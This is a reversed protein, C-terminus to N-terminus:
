EHAQPSQPTQQARQLHNKQKQFSFTIWNWHSSNPHEAGAQRHLVLSQELREWSQEGANTDQKDRSHSFLIYTTKKEM